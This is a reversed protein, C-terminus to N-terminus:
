LLMTPLDARCFHIPESPPGHRMPWRRAEFPAESATWIGDAVLPDCCAAGDALPWPGEFDNEPRAAETSREAQGEVVEPSTMAKAEPDDGAYVTPDGVFAAASSALARVSRGGSSAGGGGGGPATSSCWGGLMKAGCSSSGTETERSDAPRDLERVGDMLQALAERRRPSGAAARLGHLVHWRRRPRPPRARLREGAERAEGEHQPPPNQQQANTGLEMPDRDAANKQEQTSFRRASAKSAHARSSVPESTQTATKGGKRSKEVAQSAPSTNLM